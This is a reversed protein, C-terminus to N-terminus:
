HTHAETTSSRGFGIPLGVKLGFVTGNTKVKLDNQVNINDISNGYYYHVNYTAMNKLGQYYFLDFDMMRNGKKNFLVMGAEPMLFIGPGDSKVSYNYGFFDGHYGIMSFHNRFFAEKYYSKSKNTGIGAGLSYKFKSWSNGIFRKRNEAEKQVSYSVLYHKFATLHPYAGTYKHDAGEYTQVLFNIGLAIKQIAIKHTFLPTVYGLTFGPIESSKPRPVHFDKDAPKPNSIYDIVSFQIGIGPSIYFRQAYDKISLLQLISVTLILKKM